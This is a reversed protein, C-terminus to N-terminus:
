RQVAVFKVLFDVFKDDWIDTHGGVLKQDVKV